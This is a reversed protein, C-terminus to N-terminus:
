PQGEFEFDEDGGERQGRQRRKQQNFRYTFSLNFSRERWQFESEQLFTATTTTSQRKRSNFLDSVNLAITANDNFVDKALALNISLLGKTKTQADERPGRYFANTQWDIKAPLTVKSSLRAFWSTNDADFNTGNFEGETTFKFFNFSGNLRLWKNPNYLFGAEAGIRQNTALNIPITRVIPIGNPTEEGTDERIFQFADTEYQYYVSSTITLKKWRKLYGLDFASAFAPALSPNGQFVNAESSRSPFPNVFRGRPRNIRRNYGLTINESEALEYILNVTPFLGDFDKDFNVDFDDEITPDIGRVEGKIGTNEYRLGLLFSFQGFKNGYQTYIANVDQNFDFINSLQDNRAFVGSTGAEERVEFDTVTNRFSGRYGAEFQANEGIPLVYDAQVLYNKQDEVTTIDEAPLVETDPFTNRESIFNNETEEEIEYQLDVTLQHGSTNFNNTYNLAVQYSDGTEVEDEIRTRQEALTNASNFEDTFNGTRSDDNGTRYFGSATISSRDDINYLVGMNTTLGRRIRDYDRDEIVLPNEVTESSFRNSFFGNGPVERYRLSTTNFINFKETRYNVNGTLGASWPFGTNAIISGNFGLNKDKKLVINIIGATGEADYRASPSTIVEVREITEAPLQRLADTNGFGALASPRGNILIRVNGNGRLNIAGDVDVTVAPVNNLADSITAGSTTLDKGINYIKKDLRVVVETTEATVVVEELSDSDLEMSVTPLTTNKTLVVGEKRITKFSIYEYQVTYTGTPVKISYEGKENTIGGTVVKNQADYFAITAYELPDGTDNDVILGTVVIDRVSNQAFLGGSVLLTVLLFINKM